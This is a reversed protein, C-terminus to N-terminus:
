SKPEERPGPLGARVWVGYWVGETGAELRSQTLVVEVDSGEVNVTPTVRTPLSVARFLKRPLKVVFRSITM